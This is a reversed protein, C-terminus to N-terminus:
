AKVAVRLDPSTTNIFAAALYSVDILGERHPFRFLKKLRSPDRSAHALSLGSILRM